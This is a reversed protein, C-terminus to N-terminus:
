GTMKAQKQETKRQEKVTKEEDANNNPSLEERDDHNEEIRREPLPTAYLDGIDPEPEPKRAKLPAFTVAIQRWDYGTPSDSLPEGKEFNFNWKQTKLRHEEALERALFAQTEEHNIPGFLQRIVRSSGRNRTFRIPRM